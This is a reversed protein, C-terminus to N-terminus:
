IDDAITIIRAKHTLYLIDALYYYISMLECVALVNRQFM